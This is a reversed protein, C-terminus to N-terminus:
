SALRKQIAKLIKRFDHTTATLPPTLSLVDGQEGSPLTIFGDELLQESLTAAFGPPSAFFWLGRMYGKGRVVFPHKHHIGTAKCNAVFLQLETNLLECRKALAPLSNHLEQIIASGVASALPHGLFTSTHRAEGTSKGWADMCDAICASLPLGGGLAKGACIINPVVGHPTHAWFTGTRAFGSFIEDAILLTGHEHALEQLKLLFGKPWDREGARGQLPEFVVAAYKKTRLHKELSDLAEQESNLGRARWQAETPARPACTFEPAPEAYPFPITDCKNEIWTEFGNRFHTRNCLALPGMTLGHYAGAFSLFHTRGTAVMATKLATDVADSGSLGLTSKANKFPAAKALLELLQIKERTPHVDGMGHILKASQRRLTQRVLASGHGFALVGFCATFDLYRNNDADQVVLGRGKKMVIPFRESLFTVDPSEVCALRQLLKQSRERRLTV